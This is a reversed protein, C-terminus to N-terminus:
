WQVFMPMVVHVWADGSLPRFVGPSSPTTVEIAVQEAELITFIDMLYRNNFAIKAEEGEVVATIRGENDGIEEARASVEIEGPSGGTGPHFVFRVIGSGDRAFVSASKITRLFEAVDVVARTTYTKPILQEYDPFTGQVLQSVMQANKLRFLIQSRQPNVTLHVPEEQDRLLRDLERLAKAPVIVGLEEPVAEELDLACVALRFGDAAALTLSLDPGAM